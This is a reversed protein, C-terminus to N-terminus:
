SLKAKGECALYALLRLTKLLNEHFLARAEILRVNVSSLFLVNKCLTLTTYIKGEKSVM